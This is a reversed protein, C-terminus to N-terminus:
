DTDGIDLAAKAKELADEVDIGECIAERIM